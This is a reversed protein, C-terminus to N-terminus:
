TNKRKPSRNTKSTRTVNSEHNVENNKSAKYKASSDTVWFIMDNIDSDWACEIEGSSALKALAINYM